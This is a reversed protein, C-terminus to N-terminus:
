ASLAAVSLGADTIVFRDHRCHLLSIALQSRYLAQQHITDDIYEHLKSVVYIYTEMVFAEVEVHLREKREM